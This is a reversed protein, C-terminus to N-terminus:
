GEASAPLSPPEPTTASVDVAPEAPKDWKSSFDAGTSPAALSILTAAAAHVESARDTMGLFQGWRDASRALAEATRPCVGKTRRVEQSGDNRDIQVIRGESAQRQIEGALAGLTNKFLQDIEIKREEIDIGREKVIERGRIIAHHVTGTSKIEFLDQIARVSNGRMHSQYIEIDREQRIESRKLKVRTQKKNTGTM